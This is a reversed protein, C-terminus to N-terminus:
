AASQSGRLLSPSKRSPRRRAQRGALRGSGARAWPSPAARCSRCGRGCRRPGSGTSAWARSCAARHARRPRGAGARRAPRSGRRASGASRRRCRCCRWARHPRARDSWGARPRRPRRRRRGVLLKPRQMGLAHAARADVQHVLAAHREGREGVHLAEGRADRREAPMDLVQDVHVLKLVEVGQRAHRDIGHDAMEAVHRDTRPDVM